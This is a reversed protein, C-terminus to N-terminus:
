IRIRENLGQSNGEEPRLTEKVFNLSFDVRGFNNQPKLAVVYIIYFLRHSFSGSPLTRLECESIERLVSPM